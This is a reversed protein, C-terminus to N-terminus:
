SVVGLARSEAVAKLLHVAASLSDGALNDDARCAAELAVSLLSAIAKGRDEGSLRYALEGMLTATYLPEANNVVDLPVSLTSTLRVHLAHAATSAPSTNHSSM